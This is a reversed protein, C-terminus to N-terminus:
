GKKSTKKLKEFNRELYKTSPLLSQQIRKAYYISDLIAKNKTDVIEKQHEILKNKESLENNIRKRMKNSRYSSFAVIGVFILVVVGGIILYFQRNIQTEKEKQILNLENIKAENKVSEYKESLEAMVRANENKLQECLNIALRFNQFAPINMNAEALLNAMINYVAIQYRVNKLKEALALTKLLLPQTDNLNSTDFFNYALSMYLICRGEDTNLKAAIEDVQILVIEKIKTKHIFEKVAEQGIGGNIISVLETINANVSDIHTEPGSAFSRSFLICFLLPLFGRLLKM